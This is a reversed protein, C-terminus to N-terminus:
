LLISYACGTIIILSMELHGQQCASSATYQLKAEVIPLGHHIPQISAVGILHSVLWGKDTHAQSIGGAWWLM